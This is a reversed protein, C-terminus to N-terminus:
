FKKNREYYNIQYIDRASKGIASAASIGGVVLMCTALAESGQKRVYHYSVGAAVATVALDGVSKIVTKKVTRGSDALRQGREFSGSHRHLSEARKLSKGVDVNKSANEFRKKYEPNKMKEKLEKDLLKHRTGAGTGYAANADSQRQADKRAMEELKRNYREKGEETLTGDPNEFRRIGWKQGKIGYHYLEDTFPIGLVLYDM